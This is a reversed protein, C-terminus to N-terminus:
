PDLNAWPARGGANRDFGALERELEVLAAPPDNRDYLRTIWPGDRQFSVILVREIPPAPVSPGLRALFTGLRPADQPYQSRGFSGVRESSNWFHRFSRARGQAPVRIGGWAKVDGRLSWSILALQEQKGFKPGDLHQHGVTGLSARDPYANLPASLRRAPLVEWFNPVWVSVIVFTLILLLVITLPRFGWKLVANPVRSPHPYAAKYRHVPDPDNM